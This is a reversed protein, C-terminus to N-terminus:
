RKSEQQITQTFEAPSHVSAFRLEDMPRKEIAGYRDGAGEQAFDPCGDAIWQQIVERKWRPHRDFIRVYGPIHGAQSRLEVTRESLGLEFAVQSSDWLTPLPSHTSEPESM